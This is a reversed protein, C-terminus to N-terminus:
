KRVVSTVPDIENGSPVSIHIGPSLVSIVTSNFAGIAISSPNCNAIRSPPRVTPAPRTVLIVLYSEGAVGRRRHRSPGYTLLWRKSPAFTRTVPPDRPMPRGDGRREDRLSRHDGDGAGTTGGGLVVRQGPAHRVNRELEVRRHRDGPDHRSEVLEVHQHVVGAHVERVSAVFVQGVGELVDHDGIERPRVPQGMREM